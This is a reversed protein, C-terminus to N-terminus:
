SPGSSTWTTPRFALWLLGAFNATNKTFFLPAGTSTGALYFLLQSYNQQGVLPPEGKLERCLHPRLIQCRAALSRMVPTFLGECLHAGKMRQIPRLFRM